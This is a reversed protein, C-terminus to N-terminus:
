ERDPTPLPRRAGHRVGHIIIEDATAQYFILYPYPHAVIRRLGARSTRQGAEPHRLLLAILAQVRRKVNAAGRPSREAIYALVGDLEAAARPTYRLRM